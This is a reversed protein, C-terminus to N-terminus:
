STDPMIQGEGSVGRSKTRKVYGVLGGRGGRGGHIRGEHFPHEHAGVSTTPNTGLM